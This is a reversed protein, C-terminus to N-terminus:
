RRMLRRSGPDGVSWGEQNEADRRGQIAWGPGASERLSLPAAMRSKMRRWDPTSRFSNCSRNEAIACLKTTSGVVNETSDVSSASTRAATSWAASSTAQKGASACAVEDEEKSLLCASASALTASRRAPMRTVSQPFRTNRLEQSVYSLARRALSIVEKAVLIIRTKALIASVRQRCRYTIAAVSLAAHSHVTWAMDVDRATSETCRGSSVDCRQTMAM